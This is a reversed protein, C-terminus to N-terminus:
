VEPLEPLQAIEKSEEAELERRSQPRVEVDFELRPTVVLYGINDAFGFKVAEEPSLYLDNGETNERILKVIDERSEMGASKALIDMVRKNFRAAYKVNSSAIKIDGSPVGIQSEHIMLEANPSLFRGGESAIVSFLVVGCSMAMSNCYTIVKNDITDFAEILRIVSYADGGYSDIEVVIPQTPPYSQTIEQLQQLYQEVHEQDFHQIVIRPEISM